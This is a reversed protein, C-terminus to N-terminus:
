RRLLIIGRARQFDGGAKSGPSGAGRRLLKATPEAAGTGRPAAQQAFAGLRVGFVAKVVQDTEESPRDPAKEAKCGFAESSLRRVAGLDRLTDLVQRQLDEIDRNQM